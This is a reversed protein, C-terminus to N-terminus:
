TEYASRRLLALAAIYDDRWLHLETVEASIRFFVFFRTSHTSKASDFIFTLYVTLEDQPQVGLILGFDCQGTVATIEVPRHAV